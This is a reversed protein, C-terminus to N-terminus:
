EKNKNFIWGKIDNDWVGINGSKDYIISVGIKPHDNNPIIFVKNPEQRVEKIKSFKEQSTISEIFSRSSLPFLWQKKKKIWKGGNKKILKIIKKNRIKNPSKLIIQNNEYIATFDFEEKIEEDNSSLENEYEESDFSVDSEELEESNKTELIDNFSCDEDLNKPNPFVINTISEERNNLILEFNNNFNNIFEFYNKVEYKKFIFEQFEPKFCSLDFKIKRSM